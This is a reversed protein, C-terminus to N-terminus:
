SVVASDDYVFLIFSGCQGLGITRGEITMSVTDAPVEHVRGRVTAEIAGANELRALMEGPLSVNVCRGDALDLRGMLAPGTSQQSLTGRITCMRAASCAEYSMPADPTTECAPLAMVAMAAALLRILRM